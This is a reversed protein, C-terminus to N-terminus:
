PVADNQHWCKPSSIRAGNKSATLGAGFYQRWSTKAGVNKDQYTKIGLSKEESKESDTYKADLPKKLWLTEASLHNQHETM